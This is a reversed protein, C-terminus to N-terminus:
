NGDADDAKKPAADGGAKKGKKGGGGGGNAPDPTIHLEKGLTKPLDADAWKKANPSLDPAPPAKGNDASDPLALRLDFPEIKYGDLVQVETVGLSRVNTIKYKVYRAEVPQAMPLFYNPAELKEDDPMMFNVPVDKWYLNTDIFGQSKFDKGDLSTLVEIKDKMEGTMADLFPSGNTHIRFAACKQVDGLDVVIEPNAGRMWILGDSLNPGGTYSSGVRGDTLMTGNPDKGSHGENAPPCTYHKGVAIDKGYTVWNGVWKDGGVDKGDSYGYKVDGRAGKLNVTLADVIPQDFGGVDIKYTSPLKEVLQTHSRKVTTFDKQRERWNFTVEMPESSPTVLKHDVEMHIAYFASGSRQENAKSDILYKFLVSRTGPPVDTVTAYRIVDFPAKTDAYTLDKVWTKGADYSHLFDIHGIRNYMRGGYVLRTIDTPADVKFVIYGGQSKCFLTPRSVKFEDISEDAAGQTTPGSQGRVATREEIAAKTRAAALEERSMEGKGKPLSGEWACELNQSEVALKKYQDNRLEPWLVISETQDGDGIYVTNAGLKLEPQTKSNVQTITDFAISKLVADEPKAKASLTIKVLVEYSGNIDDLLKIEAKNDGNGTNKWVDKWHLGNSTSVAIEAGADSSTAVGAHIKLSTIVNAGEVKFVVEGAQGAVATQLTGDPMSKINSASNVEGLLHADDLLPTWTRLGTGRLHYRPNATEPDEPKKEETLGNPVFYAYDAKYGEKGSRLPMEVAEPTNADQRAYYRTYVEGDRLNLIYRHGRDQNYFYYRYKLGNPNFDHVIQSLPRETDAGECYGNPSTGTLAHYLAIYGAVPKGDTEPGSLTKGVDEISAITKGDPMTYMMSLSNDYHHFAGDYWVDPVTHLSIDFFRCPYGMYNWESCKNGSITSCMTYGYDNFQRIPDTVEYGHLKQPATQRRAFHDWYFLAYMKEQDTTWNKTISRVMSEMDSYDPNADTVVKINALQASASSALFASVALTAAATKIRNLWNM